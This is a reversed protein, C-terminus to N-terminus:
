SVGDFTQRAKVNKLLAEEQEKKNRSMEGQSDSVEQSSEQKSQNAHKMLADLDDDDQQEDSEAHDEGEKDGWLLDLISCFSPYDSDMLNAGEGQGGPWFAFSAALDEIKDATGPDMESDKSFLRQFHCSYLRATVRMALTIPFDHFHGKLLELNSVLAAYEMTSVRLSLDQAGSCLNLREEM